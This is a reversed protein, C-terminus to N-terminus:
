KGSLCICDMGLCVCKIDLAVCSVSTAYTFSTACAVMSHIFHRRHNLIAHLKVRTGSTWVVVGAADGCVNVAEALVVWAGAFVLVLANM